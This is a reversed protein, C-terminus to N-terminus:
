EDGIIKGRSIKNGFMDVGDSDEINMFTSSSINGGYLPVFRLDGKKYKPKGLSLMYIIWSVWFSFLIMPMDYNVFEWKIPIKCMAGYPYHGFEFFSSAILLGGISIGAGLLTGILIDRWDRLSCKLHGRKLYLLNLVAYLVLIMAAFTVKTPYARWIYIWIPYLLFILTTNIFTWIAIGYKSNFPMRYQNNIKKGLEEANGMTRIAMEEAYDGYASKYQETLEDIHSTLEERIEKRRPKYKIERCVTELFEYTKM